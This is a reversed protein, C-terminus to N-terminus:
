HDNVVGRRGKGDVIQSWFEGDGPREVLAHLDRDMVAVAKMQARAMAVWGDPLEHGSLSRQDVFRLIQRVLSEASEARGVWSLARSATTPEANIAARLRQELDAVRAALSEARADAELARDLHSTM